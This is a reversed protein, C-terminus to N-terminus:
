ASRVVATALTDLCAAHHHAAFIDRLAELVHPLLPAAARKACLLVRTYVECLAEVVSPLSRWPAANFQSLTPWAASLVAMAPHEGGDAGAGGGPPPNAMGPFELFRVASAVLKLEAALLAIHADNADAGAAAAHKQARALLPGVVKQAAEAAAAANPLSAVVRALGEVIAARDDEGDTGGGGGSGLGPPPPASPMCAEASEMLRGLLELSQLSAACRACVNRFGHAAHRFAQAYTRAYRHSAPPM